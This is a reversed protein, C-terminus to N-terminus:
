DFGNMMTDKFEEYSLFNRQGAVVRIMDDAEEITMEEKFISNMVHLVGENTIVGSEDRDFLKFVAKIEVEPDKNELRRQMEQFFEEWEISGSNNKDLVVLLDNVEAEAPHEGICLLLGMLEHSDITGSEDKDFFDFLKKIETLDM